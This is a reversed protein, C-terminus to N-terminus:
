QANEVMARVRERLRHRAEPVPSHRAGFLHRSLFYGTLDLGHLWEDPRSEDSSDLLFHPLPLLRERWPGAGEASVARGTKPSVFALEETTGTVTCRELSLGYGLVALLDREWRVLDAMPPPDGLVAIATILRVLDLFLQPHPERDPLAGDAVATVASIMDLHFPRDLVRASAQQVPEASVHGLQDPLRAQWRALVLNGPQWVAAQRRSAGGRVMAATRGHEETLLHVIAGSEGYARASLVLAAGEWEM